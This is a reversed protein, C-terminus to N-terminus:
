CLFIFIDLPSEIHLYCKCYMYINYLCGIIFSGFPITCYMYINYLRGIIFSGFPIMKIYFKCFLKSKQILIDYLSFDLPIGKHLM